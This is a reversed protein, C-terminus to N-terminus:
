SKVAAGMPSPRCLFARLGEKELAKALSAAKKADEFLAFVASGSGTMRSGVAGHSLAMECIRATEPLQLAREFANYLHRGVAALDKAKLAAAAMDSSVGTGFPYADVANYAAATSVGIDPKVIVVSCDPLAPLTSLVEGVGTARATGGWLCFPVDAGVTLGIRCLESLPLRTDCLRDLAALVGAADASGGGLGAQMPIRKTVAIAVGPNQRGTERFFAEAARYATNSSSVPLDTEHLTLAIRGDGTLSVAVEDCLTVTQMVTDLLHYGDARRGTIDLTLNIKAPAQIVMEM